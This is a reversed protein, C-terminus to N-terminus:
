GTCNHHSHNGPRNSDLRRRRSELHRRSKRDLYNRADNNVKNGQSLHAARCIKVDDPSQAMEAFALGSRLHNVYMQNVFESDSPRLSVKHGHQATQEWGRFGLMVYYTQETVTFHAAL